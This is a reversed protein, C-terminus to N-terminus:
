SEPTWLESAFAEPTTSYDVPSDATMAPRGLTTAAVAHRQRALARRAQKTDAAAGQIIKRQEAIKEFLQLERLHRRGALRLVKSAARLEWFTVPPHLLNAYPVDYYQRDPGLVYLRSMNRPDYRVVLKEGLRALTPLVDSWYHINELQIGSRSFHRLEVPLFSRLFRRPEGVMARSNLDRTKQEWAVGPPIGLMRHPKAHYGKCIETALWREFEGLTLIAKAEAPYDGREKPNSFSTGPLLHVAGMLTGILREIHGGYRASGRPRFQLAIGYEQCGRALADGRLDKGNDAHVCGPLGAMPWQLNLGRSALWDDKATVAHTLCLAVSLSSPPDLSVHIGYIARTAVDIAVTLWPRGIPARFQEDVVHVDAVTHDIQLVDGAGEVLFQGPVPDVNSRAYKAGHRKRAVLRPDLRRIRALVTKRSVAPLHRSACRVNVELYVREPKARPRRLYTDEIVENVVSERAADLLKVGRKRGAKEAVLSSTQPAHRLQSLWREITRPSANLRAAAAIIRPRMPGTETALLRIIRERDTAADWDPQGSTRVIEEQRARDEASMVPRCRLDGIPVTLREDTALDRIRVQELPGRQEVVVLCDRYVVVAGDRVDLRLSAPM